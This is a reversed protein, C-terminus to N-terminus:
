SVERIAKVFVAVTLVGIAIVSSILIRHTALMRLEGRNQSKHALSSGQKLPL